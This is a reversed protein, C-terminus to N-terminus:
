LDMFNFSLFNARDECPIFCTGDLATMNFM